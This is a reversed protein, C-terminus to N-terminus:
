LNDCYDRVAKVPCDLKPTIKRFLDAYVPVQLMRAILCFDLSYDKFNTCENTELKCRTAVVIM